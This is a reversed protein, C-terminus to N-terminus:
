GLRRTRGRGVGDPRSAFGQRGVRPPPVRQPDSSVRVGAADHLPRVGGAHRTPLRLGGADHVPDRPPPVDGLSLDGMLARGPRGERRRGGDAHAPPPGRPRSRRPTGRQPRGARIRRLHLEEEDHSAPQHRNIDAHLDRITDALLSLIEDRESRSEGDTRSAPPLSPADPM